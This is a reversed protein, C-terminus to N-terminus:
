MEFTVKGLNVTGLGILTSPVLVVDIVLSALSLGVTLEKGYKTDFPDLMTVYQRERMPKAFILGGLFVHCNSFFM